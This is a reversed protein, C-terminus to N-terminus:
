FKDNEFFQFNYFIKKEEDEDLFQNDSTEEQSLNSQTEAYEDTEKEENLVSYDTEIETFEDDSAEQIMRRLEEEHMSKELMMLEAKKTKKQRKYKAILREIDITSVDEWGAEKRYKNIRQHVYQLMEFMDKKSMEYAFSSINMINETYKANNPTPNQISKKLFKLQLLKFAAIVHSCNNITRSGYRNSCRAQTKILCSGWELENFPKIIEIGKNFIAAVITSATSKKSTGGKEYESGMRRYINNVVITNSCQTGEKGVFVKITERSHWLCTLAKIYNGIGGGKIVM